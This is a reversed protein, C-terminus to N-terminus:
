PWQMLISTQRVHIKPFFFRLSLIKVHWYYVYVTFYWTTENDLCVQQQFIAKEGPLQSGELPSSGSWPWRSHQLLRIAGWGPRDAPPEDRSDEGRECAAPCGPQQPDARRSVCHEWLVGSSSGTIPLHHPSSSPCFSPLYTTKSRLLSFETTHTHRTRIM